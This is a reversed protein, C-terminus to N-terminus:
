EQNEFHPPKVYEPIPCHYPHNLSNKEFEERVKKLHIPNSYCDIAALAMIKAAHMMGKHGISSISSAVIGWSHGAVGLPQCTTALMTLPAVRSLDGVDTSGTEVVGEDLAPFNDGILIEGKLKEIRAKISEDNIKFDEFKGFSRDKPYGELIKEAYRHEEKTFQIPGILQMAEYHLDALYANNQLSSSSSEFVEKFRTETMMAAGHAINRVRDTVKQLDDPKFARIYYWVEAEAPVINPLDGGHTIVYHLRVDETVHERLYNVGVNMLEVADLASRGLHPSGGAHAATGYFRFRIHNVGVVSGKSPANYVDPHYNFAADLDDFIGARAMFAKASGGEEAPCGYYRVTGTTGTEELWYRVAVAAALCGVGLLNHGCGHGAAGAILPEKVPQNKQSLGKLADYEGAFGFIPKGNGWEAVFSTNIGALNWTIHFGHATLFDAQLRSSKFEKWAVEAYEWIQDSLRTFQPQNKELWRIVDQKSKM